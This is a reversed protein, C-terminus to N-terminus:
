KHDRPPHPDNGHSAKKQITGDKRHIVLEGRNKRSSDRGYDVASDKKQFHKSARKAGGKKVNWGGKPAPVIHYSDKAM